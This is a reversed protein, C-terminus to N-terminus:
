RAEGSEAYADQLLQWGPAQFTTGTELAVKRLSREFRALGRQAWRGGAQRLFANDFDVLFVAGHADVLINHATLDPHDVGHDHFRRLMLGIRRWTVDAVREQKLLASLARTDPLYRTIIDAQYLWASRVVCAAIAVPAPLNWRELRRLLHWERFARTRNLGTFVYHDDVFRAVAGGRRYHRLVWSEDGRDLILVPSRGTSTHRRAGRSEWFDRDFWRADIIEVHAAACIVTGCSLERVRATPDNGTM